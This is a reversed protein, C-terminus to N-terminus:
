FSWFVIFLPLCLLHFLFIFHFVLWPVFFLRFVLLFLLIFLLFFIVHFGGGDCIIEMRLSPFPTVSKLSIVPALLARLSFTPKLRLFLNEKLFFSFFLSIFWPPRLFLRSLCFIAWFSRGKSTILFSPTMSSRQPFPCATL